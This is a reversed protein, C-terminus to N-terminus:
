RGRSEPNYQVKPLQEWEERSPCGATVWRRLEEARWRTSHGIKIAAPVKAAAVLRWWSPLSIGCLRAAECARLLLPELAPVAEGNSPSPALEVRRM